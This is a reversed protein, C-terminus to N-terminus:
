WAPNGDDDYLDADKFGPRLEPFSHYREVIEEITRIKQAIAAEDRDLQAQVASRVAETVTCGRREALRRALTRVGEDRIYLGM